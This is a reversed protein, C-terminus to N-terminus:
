HHDATSRTFNSTARHLADLRQRSLAVVLKRALSWVFVIVNCVVLLALCALLVTVIGRVGRKVRSFASERASPLMGAANEDSSPKDFISSRAPMEAHRAPSASSQELAREKTTVQSLDIHQVTQTNSYGFAHRIAADIYDSQQATVPGSNLPPVVGADVLSQYYKMVAVAQVSDRGDQLEDICAVRDIAHLLPAFDIDASNSSNENDFRVAFASCAQSFEAAIAAELIHPRTAANIAHDNRGENLSTWVRFALKYDKEKVENLCDAIASPAFYDGEPHDIGWEVIGKLYPACAPGPARSQAALPLSFLLAAPVTLWGIKTM